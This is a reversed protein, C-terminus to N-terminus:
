NSTLHLTLIAGKCAGQDLATNAYVLSGTGSVAQGSAGNLVITNSVVDSMSFDAVVCTSHPADVTISALHITGVFLDTAGANDATFTVPNSGGPYPAHGSTDIAAHLVVTGDSPAATVTGTGSGTTTWYALVTGGGVLLAAAVAGVAVRKRTFLNRM